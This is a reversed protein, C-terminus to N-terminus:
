VTILTVRMLLDYTYLFLEFSECYCGVGNYFYCGVVVLGSCFLPSL